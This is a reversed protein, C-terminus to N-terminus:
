RLGSRKGLATSIIRDILQPLPLGTAAWMM